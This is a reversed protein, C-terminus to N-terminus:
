FFGPMRGPALSLEIFFERSSLRAVEQGSRKGVIDATADTNAWFVVCTSPVDESEYEVTVLEALGLGNLRDLEKLLKVLRRLHCFRRGLEPGAGQFNIAAMEAKAFKIETTIANM